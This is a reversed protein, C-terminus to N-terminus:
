GVLRMHPEMLLRRMEDRGVGYNHEDFEGNSGNVVTVFATSTTAHTDQLIQVIEKGLGELHVSEVCVRTCVYTKGNKLASLIDESGQQM